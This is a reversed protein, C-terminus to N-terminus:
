QRAMSRWTMARSFTFLELFPPNRFDTCGSSTALITQSDTEVPPLIEHECDSPYPPPLLLLLLLHHHHHHHHVVVLLWTSCVLNFLGPQVFWTSCVLNFLGPQVFWTSCFWTSCFWTSCFWTSCACTLNINVGRARTSHIFLARAELKRKQQFLFRVTKAKKM